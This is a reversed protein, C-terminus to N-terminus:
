LSSSLSQTYPNRRYTDLIDPNIRERIINDNLQNNKTNTMGCLNKQPPAAYVVSEAPDRYNIQDSEIKNYKSNVTDSGVVLSTNCTTPERGRAIIEKNPNLHANYYDAYSAQSKVYKQPTGNYEWNCTFQRHTNQAQYANTTYGMGDVNNCNAIGSYFMDCLFQKNTNKMDVSTSIYAGAYTDQNGMNGMNDNNITLEKISTRAIDEPDYIRLCRPQQPNMNIFPAENNIHMEKITTKAVDNPDYIKNKREGTIFGDHLNDETTERITTRAVDNPDYITLKSPMAANMNGDPRSNGIFNEKRTPLLIDAIPAIIKKISITLNTLVTKNETTLRENPKNEIGHKGYDNVLHSGNGGKTIDWGDKRHSNRLIPSLYNNKTSKRYAGEKTPKLIQSNGLGGFYSRKNQKNTTKMYFNERVSSAKVAASNNGRDPNSRYWREPRRKVVPAQLGRQGGKLGAIVRGEYSIKPNTLVRLEDVNKPLVFDRANAQNLGGNPEATFGSALGPGVNIKQIPFEGQRKQSPIYRSMIDENMTFSPTGNPMGMNPVVDFFSATETKVPRYTEDNGTFRGLRNSFVDDKINQVHNGKFFPMMNNHFPENSKQGSLLSIFENAPAGSRLITDMPHGTTNNNIIKQNFGINPIVNTNTANQASQFNRRALNSEQKYVNDLLSVNQSAFM